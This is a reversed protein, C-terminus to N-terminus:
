HLKDRKPPSESFRSYKPKDGTTTRNKPFVAQHQRKLKVFPGSRPPTEPKTELRLDSVINARSYILKVDNNQEATITTVSDEVKASILWLGAGFLFFVFSYVVSWIHVTALTFFLGIFTFMWAWRFQQLRIDQNLNHRGIQWLAALIGMMLFAFGPIGYRMATLLWFNDVSASPMYQPRVWDNFGLGFLPNSWVNQMGWDFIIARWYANHTSFTAYTLFVRFPSRNSLLDVMFFLVVFIALLALWKHRIPKMIWAWFILCIQLVVALLAGSSLSLFVSLGILTSLLYRVPTRLIGKFGVFCLSFGVSAFLGFHIPHPFIGQVRNLGLRPETFVTPYSQLGPVRRIAELLIPHGTVTEYIALPLTAVIILILVRTMAAFSEPTRIYARGLVYAGVFEISNSGVSEVVRDPNNLTIAVASWFIYLFFLIDTWLIRGYKGMLLRATLPVILVLLLMRLGNLSIPGLSFQVPTIVALLYLLVPVPLKFQALMLGYQNSTKHNITQM